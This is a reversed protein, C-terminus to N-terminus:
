YARRVEINEVENEVELFGCDNVVLERAEEASDAEVTYVERYTIEVEYKM